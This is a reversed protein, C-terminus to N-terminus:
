QPDRGADPALDLHLWRLVCRIYLRGLFFFITSIVAAPLLFVPLVVTIVVAVFLVQPAYDLVPQLNEVSETDLVETDKSFRNIANSTPTRDWFRFPVAFIRATLRHHLLRSARIGGVILYLYQM